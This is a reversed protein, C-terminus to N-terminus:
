QYGSLVGPAQSGEKEISVGEFTVKCWTKEHEGGLM